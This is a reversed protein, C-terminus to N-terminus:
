LLIFQCASKPRPVLLGRGLLSAREYGADHNEPEDNRRESDEGERHEGPEYGPPPSMGAESTQLAGRHGADGAGVRHEPEKSPHQQSAEAFHQRLDARFRSGSRRCSLRGSHRSTRPTLDAPMPRIPRRPRRPVGGLSRLRPQRHGPPRDTRRRRHRGGTRRRHRRGARASSPRSGDAPQGLGLVVDDPAVSGGAAAVDKGESGIDEDVVDPGQEPVVASGRREPRHAMFEAAPQCLCSSRERPHRGTRYGADLGRRSM